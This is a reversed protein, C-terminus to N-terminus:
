LWGLVNLKLSNKGGKKTEQFLGHLIRSLTSLTTNMMMHEIDLASGWSYVNMSYIGKPHSAISISEPAVRQM